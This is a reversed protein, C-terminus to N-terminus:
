EDIGAGRFGEIQGASLLDACRREIADASAFFDEGLDIAATPRARILRVGHQSAIDALRLALDARGNFLVAEIQARVAALTAGAQDGCDLIASFDADPV